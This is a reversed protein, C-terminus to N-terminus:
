SGSGVLEVLEARVEPLLPYGVRRYFSLAQSYYWAARMPEALAMAADATRKAARAAFGWCGCRRAISLAERAHLRAAEPEGWMLQAKAMAAHAFAAMPLRGDEHAANIARHFREFCEDHGGDRLSSALEVLVPGRDARTGPRSALWLSRRAATAAADPDGLRRDVQSRVRWWMAAAEMAPVSTTSDPPRPVERLIRAAQEARGSHTLLLARVLRLRQDTGTTREELELAEDLYHEARSLDGTVGIVAALDALTHAVEDERSRARHVAEIQGLLELAEDLRGKMALSRALRRRGRLTEEPTLSSALERRLAGEDMDRAAVTAAADDEQRAAPQELVMARAALLARGPDLDLAALAARAAEFVGIAESRRGVRNLATMWLVQLSERTRHEGAVPALVDLAAEHEGRDLLHTFRTEQALLYMDELRYREAVVDPHEVDPFPEGAWLGVVHELRQLLETDARGRFHDALVGGIAREFRWVDVTEPPVDLRYGDPGSEIAGPALRSRLRHIHLHLRSEASSNPDDPWLAETLADPSTWQPARLTLLALLLRQLNGVVQRPEHDVAIEFRGIVNIAMPPVRTAETSALFGEDRRADALFVTM